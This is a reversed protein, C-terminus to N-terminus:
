LSSNTIALILGELPGEQQGDSQQGPVCGDTNISGTIGGWDGGVVHIHVVLSPRRRWQRRRALVMM